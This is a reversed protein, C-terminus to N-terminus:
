SQHSARSVNAEAPRWHYDAETGGKAIWEHFPVFYTVDYYKRNLFRTSEDRNREPPSARSAVDELSTAIGSSAAQSQTDETTAFPGDRESRVPEVQVAPASATSGTSSLDVAPTPDPERQREQVPEPQYPTWNYDDKTTSPETSSSTEGTTSGTGESQLSSGESAIPTPRILQEKALRLDDNLREIENDSGILKQEAEIARDQWQSRESRLNVLELRETESVVVMAGGGEVAAVVKLCDGVHQRVLTLLASVKDTEELLRFGANDREAEVSRLKATLTDENQKLEHIRLERQAVTERLDGIAKEMDGIQRLYVPEADFARKAEAISTLFGSISENTM